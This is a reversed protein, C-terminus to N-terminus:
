ELDAFRPRCHEFNRVENTAKVIIDMSAGAFQSSMGARVDKWDFTEWFLARVKTWFEALFPNRGKWGKPVAYYKELLSELLAKQAGHFRGQNGPRKGEAALRAEKSKSPAVANILHALPVPADNDNNATSTSAATAPPTSVTVNPIDVEGGVSSEDAINPADAM